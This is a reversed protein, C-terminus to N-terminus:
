LEVEKCRGNVCIRVKTYGKRMLYVLIDRWVDKERKCVYYGVGYFCKERITKPSRASKGYRFSTVGYVIYSDKEIHIEPIM